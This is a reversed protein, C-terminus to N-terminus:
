LWDRDLKVEGFIIFKLAIRVEARRQEDEWLIYIFIHTREESSSEKEKKEDLWCALLLRTLHVQFSLECNDM